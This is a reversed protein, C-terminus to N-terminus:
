IINLFIHNREQYYIYITDQIDRQQTINKSMQLDFPM